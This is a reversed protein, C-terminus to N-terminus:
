NLGRDRSVHPVGHESGIIMVTGDATLVSSFFMDENNFEGTVTWNQANNTSYLLAFVSQNDTTHSNTKKAVSCACSCGPCCM